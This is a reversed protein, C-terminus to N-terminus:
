SPSCVQFFIKGAFGNMDQKNLCAAIVCVQCHICQTSEEFKFYLKIVNFTRWKKERIACM